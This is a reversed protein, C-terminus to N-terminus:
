GDADHELYREVLPGIVGAWGAPGPEAALMISPNEVVPMSHFTSPVLVALDAASLMAADNDSDGLAIVRTPCRWLNQYEERLSRLARAKDSGGDVHLFRGGRKVTLGHEALKATFKTLAGSGDRWVIPEGFERCRARAADRASLGTMRRLRDEDIDAFGEFRYRERLTGLVARIDAYPTGLILATYGDRCEWKSPLDEFLREPAFIAGGNEVIFPDRNDLEERVAEVEVRTKSTSLVVPIGARALSRLVPLAPTATYDQSDLLTGDLDTVVIWRPRPGAGLGLVDVAREIGIPPYRTSARTMSMFNATM